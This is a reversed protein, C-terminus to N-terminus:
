ANAIHTGTPQTLNFDFNELSLILINRDEKNDIQRIYNNCSFGIRVPQHLEHRSKTITHM